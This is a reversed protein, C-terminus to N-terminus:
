NSNINHSTHNNIFTYTSCCSIIGFFALNKGMIKRESKKGNTENYIWIFSEDDDDDDDIVLIIATM